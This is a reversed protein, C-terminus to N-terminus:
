WQNMREIFGEFSCLDPHGQGIDGNLSCRNETVIHVRSKSSWKEFISNSLEKTIIILTFTSRELASEIEANVHEDAMGYGLTILRNLKDDGHFLSGRFESWLTSYPARGTDQAKRYQPPIMLKKAGTPTPDNFKSRRIGAEDDDYWGMSGHLKILRINGAVGRVQRGRYNRERVVVTHRFSGADFFANDHGYFGDFLTVCEQEAAMEVLPDYNLSFVKIPQEKEWRSLLSVFLRHNDLPANIDRFSNAIANVVNHRHPGETAQGTDLLDLAHEIGTAGSDIKEQIEEREKEPVNESIKGWLQGALPYGKGSLYSSGAGLLFGVKVSTTQERIKQELDSIYKELM